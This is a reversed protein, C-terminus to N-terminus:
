IYRVRFPIWVWLILPSLRRNCLYSYIWSGYLRSWSPGGIGSSYICNSKTHYVTM